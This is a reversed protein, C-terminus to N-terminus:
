SVRVGFGFGSDRIGFGSVQYGFGSGPVRFGMEWNRESRLGLYISINETLDELAGHIGLLAQIQPGCVNSDRSELSSLLLEFYSVCSSSGLPIDQVLCGFCEHRDRWFGLVQLM